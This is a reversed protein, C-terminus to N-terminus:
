WGLEPDRLFGFVQSQRNMGREPQPWSAVDEPQGNREAQPLDTARGVASRDLVLRDIERLPALDVVAIEQEFDDDDFYGLEVLLVARSTGPDAVIETVRELLDVSAVEPVDFPETLDM